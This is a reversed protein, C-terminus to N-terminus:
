FFIETIFALIMVIFAVIVCNAGWDFLEFKRSAIRSNVVIQISIDQIFNDSVGRRDAPLYRELLKTSASELSLHQLDGFFILNPHKSVKSWRTFFGKLDTRPLFSIVALLVAMFFLSFVVLAFFFQSRSLEKRSFLFNVIAIIWASSFTLLAANKTEAFKVFDIARNLNSSLLKEIANDQDVTIGTQEREKM